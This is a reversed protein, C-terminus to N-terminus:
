PGNTSSVWAFIALTAVLCTVQVVRAYPIFDCILSFVLPLIASVIILTALNYRFRM